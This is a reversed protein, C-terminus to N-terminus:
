ADAIRWTIGDLSVYQNDSLLNNAEVVVYVFRNARVEFRRGLQAVHTHTHATGTSAPGSVFNGQALSTILASGEPAWDAPVGTITYTGATKNGVVRFLGSLFVRNGYRTAKPLEFSGGYATFGADFPELEVEEFFPVDGWMLDKVDIKRSTRGDHVHDGPSAQAPLPGLTHHMARDDRDVDANTHLRNIVDPSPRYRIDDLPNDAM